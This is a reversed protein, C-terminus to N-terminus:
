KRDGFIRLLYLFLNIFDLYLSLAGFLALKHGMEDVSGYEVVMEKIKQTDYATLGVFILVGVYSIVWYLIENGLFINVVSAIILGILAMVLISGIRTLDIRTFYGILSMVLFTGATIFFVTAISATTYLMFISSMTVGMLASYLIFLLTASTMSMKVLRASLWIVLAIQAILTIWIISPNEVLMTWFQVSNSLFYSVLGTIALAAAMQMYVSKMLTAAASQAATQQSVFNAM